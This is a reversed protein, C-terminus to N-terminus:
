LNSSVCRIPIIVGLDLERSQHTVTAPTRMYPPCGDGASESLCARGDLAYIVEWLLYPRM